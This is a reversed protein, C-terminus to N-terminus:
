YNKNPLTAISDIASRKPHVCNGKCAQQLSVAILYQLVLNSQYIVFSFSGVILPFSFHLQQGCGISCLTNIIIFEPFYFNQKLFDSNFLIVLEKEFTNTIHKGLVNLRTIMLRCQFKIPLYLYSFQYKSNLSLDM